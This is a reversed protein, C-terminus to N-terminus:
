WQGSPSPVGESMGAADFDLGYRQRRHRRFIVLAPVWTVLTILLFGAAMGTAGYWKGLLPLAVVALGGEILSLPWYPEQKHARLYSRMAHKSHQVVMALLLLAADQPSLFRAALPVNWVNLMHLGWGMGLAGVGALLLSSAAARVFLRDLADFERRAAAVAIRPVQTAVVAYALSSLAGMVALTMGMQGAVVPGQFAFLVPTFLSFFFYGGLWSLAYKWQLPWIERHWQIPQPSPEGLLSSFFSGYRRLVVWAGALFAAAKGAALTWLGGGALITAWIGIRSLIGQTLRLRQVRAVQNCGELTALAPVLLLAAGTLTSVMWWPLRWLIEDGGARHPFSQFYAHGGLGIGVILLIGAIGYWRLALRVLSALRSRSGDDGIVRGRADFSLRAWEHSALQQLLVGLGLELFAQLALVSAFTYYYGQLEPSFRHTIIAITVVGGVVSWVQVAMAYATARDVGLLEVLRGPSLM